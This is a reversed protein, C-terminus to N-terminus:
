EVNEEEVKMDAQTIAEKIKDEYDSTSISGKRATIEITIDIDEFLRKLYNVTRAIDSLKGSPVFEYAALFYPRIKKTM